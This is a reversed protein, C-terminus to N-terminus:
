KSVVPSAPSGVPSGHAQAVPSGSLGSGIPSDGDAAGAAALMRRFNAAQDRYLAKRKAEFVSSPVSAGTHRDVELAVYPNRFIIRMVSKGEKDLATRVHRTCGAQCAVINMWAEATSACAGGKSRVEVTRSCELLKVAASVTDRVAQRGRGVSLVVPKETPVPSAAGDACEAGRQFAEEAEQLLKVLGLRQQLSNADFTLHQQQGDPAAVRDSREATRFHEGGEPDADWYVFPTDPMDIKMRPQKAAEAQAEAIGQEDWSVSARRPSRQPSRRGDGGHRLIGADASAAAGESM